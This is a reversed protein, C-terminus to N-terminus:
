EVYEKRLRRNALVKRLTEGERSAGEVYSRNELKAKYRPGVADNVIDFMRQEWHWESLYFAKHEPRRARRYKDAFYNVEEQAQERRALGEDLRQKEEKTKPGLFKVDGTNVNLIVDDPHPVPQPEPLGLRCCREIEEDWHRKYDFMASFLEYKSQHHTAETREVMEAMAKQALRNGKMASVGLARFVAQIAPLQIVQDGERITVPRYAEMLLFDETPKRGYDTNVGTSKNKAGKPRGRPNGSRGKTFRHEVPPKAYGVEYRVPLNSGQFSEPDHKSM